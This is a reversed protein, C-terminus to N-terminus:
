CSKVNSRCRQAQEMRQIERKVHELVKDNRTQDQQLYQLYAQLKILYDSEDKMEFTAEGFRTYGCCHIKVIEAFEHRHVQVCM